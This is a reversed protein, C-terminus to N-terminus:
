GQWFVLLMMVITSCLIHFLKHHTPAPGQANKKGPLVLKADGKVIVLIHFLKHHTPAPGQTKAMMPTADTAKRNMLYVIMIDINM